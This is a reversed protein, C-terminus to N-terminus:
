KKRAIVDIRPFEFYVEGYPDCPEIELYRNIIQTFFEEKQNEDVYNIYPYWQIIYAELATRSEFFKVQFVTEFSIIEFDASVIMKRYDDDTLDWPNYYNDFFHAWNPDLLAENTAQELPESIGLPITFAIKGDKKLANNVRAMFPLFDKIWHLAFSSFIIDFKNHFTILSADQQLFSVNKYNSSIFNKKSFDIMESSMDIGLIEGKPIYSSILATIKGDGCGIDLIDESGNFSLQRLIKKSAELQISSNSNYEKANWKQRSDPKTLISSPM